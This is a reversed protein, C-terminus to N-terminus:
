EGRMLEDYNFGDGLADRISIHDGELRLVRDDYVVVYKPVTISNAVFQAGKDTIRWWGAHGGDDRRREDAELLGWYALKAGERLSPVLRATHCFSQGYSGWQAILVRAMGSNLKRRYTKALQTCCPCQAGDKLRLRLWAKAQALTITDPGSYTETV